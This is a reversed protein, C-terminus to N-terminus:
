EQAEYYVFRYFIISLGSFVKLGILTNMLIMYAGDSLVATVPPWQLFLYSIPTLLIFVFLIKETREFGDIKLDFNPNVLYRSILATALIAGGQFGGGPSVHGNVMVYLGILLVYPYVFSVMQIIIESYQHLQIRPTVFSYARREKYWSVSIVEIVSVMLMLAEFLTDYVRYNLYIAAVSNSAGTEALFDTTFFEKLQTGFSEFSTSYIGLMLSAGILVALLRLLSIAKSSTMM